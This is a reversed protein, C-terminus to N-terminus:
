RANGTRHPLSRGDDCIEGFRDSVCFNEPCEANAVVDSATAPVLAAWFVDWGAKNAEGGPGLRITWVDDRGMTVQPPVRLRLTQDGTAHTRDIRGITYENVSVVNVRQENRANLVRLVLDVGGDAQSEPPPRLRFSVSGPQVFVFESRIHDCAARACTLGHVLRSLEYRYGLRACTAPKVWASWLCADDKTAQEERVFHLATPTGPQRGAVDGFAFCIGRPGLSRLIQEPQWTLFVVDRQQLLPLISAADDESVFRVSHRNHVAHHRVALEAFAVHRKQDLLHDFEQSSM